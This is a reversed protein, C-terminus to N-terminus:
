SCVRERLAKYTVRYKEAIALAYALGDARRRVVKYTREAPNEPVVTSVLSVTSPGFSALEEVFTVFVALVDLEVLREMVKTGLFLSDQLTTSAFIENLVVISETTAKSLVHRARLIDDELKGTMNALDEEREFHTFIQDFLHLRAARGPVPCGITALHHLQGFMRAFTTKGGQNPGSVVLVREPGKLVFDNCVVASREASLKRALVLDFSEQAFVEKSRRAVEPYCFTLGAARLPAIYDLYGIYFQVERDFRRVTSDVFNRHTNYFNDLSAFAEPYLSAVLGLVQAEIHNMEIPELFSARYDKVAGQKFREFTALVESSYDPEGDYKTVTVRGGNINVCYRVEALMQRVHATAALLSIFAEGETYRRLYAHLVTLARSGIEVQDLGQTLSAVAQCYAEVADVFWSEAQYRYHLKKAQTLRARMERMDRAFTSVREFVSSNELDKFVEQRFSITAPDELHEFFFPELEYEERGGTVATVFQDLNLDSFYEPQGNVEPREVALADPPFLVSLVRAPVEAVVTGTTCEGPVM